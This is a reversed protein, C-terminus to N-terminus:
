RFSGLEGSAQSANPMNVVKTVFAFAAWTGTPVTM